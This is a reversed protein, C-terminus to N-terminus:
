VLVAGLEGPVYGGVLVGRNQLDPSPSLIFDNARIDSYIRTGKGGQFCFLDIWHNMSVQTQKNTQKNKRVLDGATISSYNLLLDRLYIMPRKMISSSLPSRSSEQFTYCEKGVGAAGRGALFNDREFLRPDQPIYFFRWQLIDLMCDVAKDEKYMKKMEEKPKYEIDRVCSLSYEPSIGRRGMGTSETAGPSGEQIYELVALSMASKIDHLSKEMSALTIGGDIRRMKGASDDFYKATGLKSAKISEM